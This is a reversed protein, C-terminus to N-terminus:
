GRVTGREYRSVVKSATQLIAPTPAINGDPMAMPQSPKGAARAPLPISLKEASWSRTPTGGTSAAASGLTKNKPTLIKKNTLRFYDM